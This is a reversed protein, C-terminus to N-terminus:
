LSKSSEILSKVAETDAPTIVTISCATLGVATMLGILINKM